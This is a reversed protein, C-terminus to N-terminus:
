PVVLVMSGATHLLKQSVSGLALGQLGSLGRTGIVILECKEIQAAEKIAEAPDGELILVEYDIGSEELATKHPAVVKEAQAMFKDLVQQYYPQSFIDPMKQRVHLLVIRAQFAEAMEIAKKVVQASHVSGDVAALIQKIGHRTM